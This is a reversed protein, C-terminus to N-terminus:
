LFPQKAVSIPFTNSPQFFVLSDLSSALNCFCLLCELLHEPDLKVDNPTALHNEKQEM